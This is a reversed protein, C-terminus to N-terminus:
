PAKTFTSVSGDMEKLRFRGPGYEIIPNVDEMGPNGDHIWVMAGDRLSWKGKSRFLVTEGLRCVSRYRGDESLAVQGVNEDTSSTTTWEGVFGATGRTEIAPVPASPEDPLRSLWHSVFFATVLLSFALGGPVRSGRISDPM